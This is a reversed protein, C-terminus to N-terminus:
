RRLVRLAWSGWGFSHGITGLITLMRELDRASELPGCDIPDYGMDKALSAVTEKAETDDGALFVSAAVGDFDASENAVPSFITNWGKVVRAGPTKKQIEEANSSDEHLKVEGDVYPNTIDVLVKGRLDGLDGLTEDVAVWPVALFVVEADKAAETYSGGSSAGLEKALSTAREPDRSGIIVDHRPVLSRALAGGMGGAGIIAIKM